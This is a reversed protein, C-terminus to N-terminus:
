IFSPYKAYYCTGYVNYINAGTDIFTKKLQEQLKICTTSM